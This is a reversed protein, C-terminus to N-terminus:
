TRGNRVQVPLALINEASRQKKATHRYKVILLAMAVYFMTWAVSVVVYALAHISIAYATAVGQCAAWAVWTGLNLEDSEKTILLQKIQPVM